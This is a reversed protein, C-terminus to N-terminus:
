ISACHTVDGMPGNPISLEPKQKMLEAQRIVMPEERQPSTANEADWPTMTLLPLSIFLGLQIFKMLPRM